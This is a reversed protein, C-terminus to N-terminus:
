LDEVDRFNSPSERMDWHVLLLGKHTVKEVLSAEDPSSGGLASM